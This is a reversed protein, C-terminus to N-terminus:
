SELDGVPEGYVSERLEKEREPLLHQPMFWANAIATPIVASGIVTAVLHSYQRQDIIGHNLGFLASITGFTLGTSMMLSYYVGDHGDYGFIRVTPLLGALKTGMKALFLTVFALPAAVLMPVSVFSGARIFYFPTLLGFTLTRLRRILFHDRGVTGALVMGIIYAPLVAESGSWAALGGLGFLLLLLYKTELESVRGGYRQFLWPTVFPLAAFFALSCALFVLTKVTFPSFILGLAIVTGLDNVFCAALIAKGYTTRNFGLELMVAYVVAVSTTSLAVGALWSPRWAWGLLFHAVAAAGFFPAFFGVLGVASSEKWKSRFIQPDLEAGALFTLVIAGTGALFTIWPAKANLLEGAGLVGIAFQATTGVTIESLATSVRLWHAVLVAALALLLWLAAVFWVQEM